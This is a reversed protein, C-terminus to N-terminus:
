FRTFVQFLVGDFAPVQYCTGATCQLGGRRQGWFGIIGHNGVNVSASLSSYMRRSVEGTARDTADVPDDTTQHV